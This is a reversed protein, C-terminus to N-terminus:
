MAMKAPPHHRVTCGQALLATSRPWTSSSAVFNARLEQWANRVSNCNSSPGALAPEARTKQAASRRVCRCQQRCQTQTSGRKTRPHRQPTKRMSQGRGSSERIPWVHRTCAVAALASAVCLVPSLDRTRILTSASPLATGGEALALPASGSAVPAVSDSGPARVSGDVDYMFAIGCTRGGGGGQEMWLHTTCHTTCDSCLARCGTM